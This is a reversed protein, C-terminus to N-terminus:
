EKRLMVNVSIIADALYVFSTMIAFAGLALPAANDAFAVALDGSWADVTVSGCSLFLVFGLCSHVVNQFYVILLNSSYSPYLM